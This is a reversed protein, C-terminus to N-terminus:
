RHGYRQLRAQLTKRDVGLIRAAESKNGRVANVVSLVHRREIDALPVLEGSSEASSEGSPQEESPLNALDGSLDALTVWAGSALTVAGEVTNRLERVNGPWDHRLLHPMVDPAFGSLSKGDRQAFEQLFHEALIPIDERRERLPPVPISVVNLCSFLDARFGGSRVAPLLSRPSAAVVRVDFSLEHEGGIPRARRDRLARRLGAQLVLSLEGIDDLFLTGRHARQLAGLRATGNGSPGGREQGFLEIALRDDPLAACNLAVFPGSRRGSSAHIVRAVREKGSGSEGTLLVAADSGRMRGLLDSLRKLRASVGLLGIFGSGEDGRSRLQEVERQRRCQEVTQRLISDLADPRLTFSLVQHAGARLGAEADCLDGCDTLLLVPVAAAVTAIKGCLALGAPDLRPLALLISEFAAASQLLALAEDCSSAEALQHGRARLETPLPPHREVAIDVLLVRM